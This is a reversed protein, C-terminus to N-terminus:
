LDDWPNKPGGSNKPGAMRMRAAPTLGLEVAWEISQTALKVFRKYEADARERAVEYEADDRDISCMRTAAAAFDQAALETFGEALAYRSVIASDAAAIVGVPGWKRAIELWPQAAQFMDVSKPVVVEGGEPLTVENPPIGASQNPLVTGRLIQVERPVSQSTIHATGADKRRRAAGPKPGRKMGVTGTTLTSGKTM